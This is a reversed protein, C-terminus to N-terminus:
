EEEEEEEGEECEDDSPPVCFFEGSAIDRMAVVAGTGDDLEVVQCNPNETSRHLECDPMDDETFIVTGEPIAETAYLGDVNTMGGDKLASGSFRFDRAYSVSPFPQSPIITRHFWLRTNLILIDGEQCVVHYEIDHTLQASQRLLDQTPHIFWEKTGSLQWHFTGDHSVSDTHDPRGPLPSSGPPNRGFFFWLAKEYCWSTGTFDAFPIMCNVADQYAANDKQVLFSCYARHPTVTPQLFVEPPLDQQDGQELCWSEKDAASLGQFIRNLSKWTISNPRAKANKILLVQHKQYLDILETSSYTPSSMDLTPVNSGGRAAKVRIAGM